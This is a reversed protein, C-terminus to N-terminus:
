NGKLKSILSKDYNRCNNKKTYQNLKRILKFDENLTSHPNELIELIYNPHLGIVGSIAYYPHYTPRHLNLRYESKSMIYKDYYRILPFIENLKRKNLKIMELLFLESKLNGAGRGMGGICSDIFTCGHYIAMDTKQFSDENNAHGHFGFNLYSNYKRLERYFMHLQSATSKSNFGGYTDALYMASINSDHFHKCIIAVEEKDILDGCGLNMCVEYGLETLKDCVARAEKVDSENYRSIMGTSTHTTRALLVRVMDILSNQKKGFDSLQFTGLKAMVAIKCGTPHFDVVKQIDSESSYCWRGKNKIYTPNARFGIEFYDYGANSVARYCERVQTLNFKWNNLYGGDRITCDVLKVDNIDTKRNYVDAIDSETLISHCHLMEATTFDLQDDIDFGSVSDKHIFCPSKGVVNKNQLVLKKSIINFGFNLIDYSPLEQSPVPNEFDYNMPKKDDWLFEQLKTTCNVSDYKDCNNLYLSIAENYDEVSIFPTTCPTHMLVDTEIIEALHKFFDGPNENTCFKPDRKHPTVKLKRAIALMEDSDSTVIIQHIGSVGKLTKIKLTLLNTDGFDRINKNSCRTSTKKVPIVATIKKNTKM